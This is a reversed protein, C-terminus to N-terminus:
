RYSRTVMKHMYRYHCLQAGTGFQWRCQQDAGYLEGPLRDDEEYEIPPPPHNDLCLSNMGSLICIM